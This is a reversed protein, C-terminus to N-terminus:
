KTQAKTKHYYTRAYSAAKTKKCAKCFKANKGKAMFGKGCGQCTVLYASKKATKKPEAKKETKSKM